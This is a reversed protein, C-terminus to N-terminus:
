NSPLSHLGRIPSSEPESTYKRSHIVKEAQTDFVQVINEEGRVYSIM